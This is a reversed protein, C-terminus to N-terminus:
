PVEGYVLPKFQNEWIWEYSFQWLHKRSPLRPIIQAAIIDFYGDEGGTGGSYSVARLNGSQGDRRGPTSHNAPFFIADEGGMEIFAPVYQNLVLLNGSIKAEQFTNGVTERYSGSVFLNAVKFLDSVARRPLPKWNTVIDSTFLYDVGEILNYRDAMVKKREFVEGQVKRANGQAFIIAVSLGARKLAAFVRVVADFGKGEMRTACHPFIQIADKNPIDLRRCIEWSYPHFNNFSRYDKPNYVCYVGSAETGYMRAVDNLEHSNLYVVKSNPMTQYKLEEPYRLGHPRDTWGSHIWNYYRIPPFGMGERIKDVEPQAAKLAANYALFNGNTQYLLDATLIVDYPWLYKTYQEVFHKVRKAFPVSSKIGELCAVQNPYHKEKCRRDVLFAFHQDFYELLKARELWGVHLAYSDQFGLFHTLIGIKLGDM